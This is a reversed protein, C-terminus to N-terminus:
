TVPSAFIAKGAEVINQLTFNEPKLQGNPTLRNVVEPLVKALKRQLDAPNLGVKDAIAELREKGIVSELQESSIPMNAGNSVWSQFLSATGGSEFLKALGGVDGKSGVLHTVAELVKSKDSSEGLVQKAMELFNM